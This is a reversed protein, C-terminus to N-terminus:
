ILLKSINRFFHLFFKLMKFESKIQKKLFIVRARAVCYEVSGNTLYFGETTRPSDWDFYFTFGLKRALEIAENLTIPGSTAKNWEHLKAEREPSSFQKKIAEAGAVTFTQLNEPKKPDTIGLIWPQDVPDANSDIMRASLADTRALIVLDTGMIDAQLRAAVLRQVHERCSVIVKGAM